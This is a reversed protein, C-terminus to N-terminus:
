NGQRKMHQQVLQRHMELIRQWKEHSQIQRVSFPSCFDWLGICYGSDPLDKTGM